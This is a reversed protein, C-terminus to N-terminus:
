TDWPSRLRTPAGATWCSRPPPPCDPRWGDPFTQQVGSAYCCVGCSVVCPTCLPDFEFNPAIEGDAWVAETRVRRPGGELLTAVLAYSTGLGSCLEQCLRRLYPLGTAPNFSSSFGPSRARISYQWRIRPSFSNM